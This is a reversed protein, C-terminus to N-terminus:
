AAFGAVREVLWYSATIGILYSSLAISRRHALLTPRDMELIKGLLAVATLIAAFLLHDIGVFIHEIGLLAYQTAVGTFNEAEPVQWRSQGPKLIGTHLEGSLLRVPDGADSLLAAGTRWHLPAANGTM